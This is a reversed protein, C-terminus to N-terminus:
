RIIRSRWDKPLGSPRVAVVKADLVTAESFKKMSASVQGKNQEKPTYTRAEEKVVGIGIAM